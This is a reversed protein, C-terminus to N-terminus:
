GGRGGAVLGSFAAGGVVTPVPPPMGRRAVPQAVLPVAFLSALMAAAIITRGSIGVNMMAAEPTAM